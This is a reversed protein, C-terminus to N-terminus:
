NPLQPGHLLLFTSSSHGLQRAPISVERAALENMSRPFSIHLQGNRERVCSDWAHAEGDKNKVRAVGTRLSLIQLLFPWVVAEPPTWGNICQDGHVPLPFAIKWSRYNINSANGDKSGSANVPDIFSHISVQGLFKNRIVM